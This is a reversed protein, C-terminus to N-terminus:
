VLIDLFVCKVLSELHLGRRQQTCESIENRGVASRVMSKGNFISSLQSDRDRSWAVKAGIIYNFVLCM